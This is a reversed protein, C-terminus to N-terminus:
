VIKSSNNITEGTENLMTVDGNESTLLMKENIEETKDEKEIKIQTMEKGEEDIRIQKKRKRKQVLLRVYYCPFDVCQTGDEEADIYVGRVLISNSSNLLVLFGFCAIHSVWYSTIPADPIFHIDLMIWVGRWVNVAGFFSFLLYVDVALIRKLGNIKNVLKKVAPQLAFALLVVSYGIVLSLIASTNDDGPYIYEDM